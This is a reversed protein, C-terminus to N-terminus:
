PRRRRHKPADTSLRHVGAEVDLVSVATAGARPWGDARKIEAGRPHTAYTGEGPDLTKWPKDFRLDTPLLRGEAAPALVPPLLAGCTQFAMLLTGQAPAFEGELHLDNGHISLHLHLEGPVMGCGPNPIRMTTQPLTAGNRARCAAADVDEFHLVTTLTREAQAITIIDAPAVAGSGTVTFHQTHGFRGFQGPARFEIDQEGEISSRLSCPDATKDTLPLTWRTQQVAGPRSEHVANLLSDLAFHRATAHASPALAALVVLLTPLITKRM